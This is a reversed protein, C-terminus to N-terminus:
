RFNSCSRRQFCSHIRSTAFTFRSFIQFSADTFILFNEKFKYLFSNLVLLAHKVFIFWIIIFRWAEPAMWYPTGVMTSRKTQEGSLQACFGFDAIWLTLPKIFSVSKCPVFILKLTLISSVWNSMAMWALFFRFWIIDIAIIAWFIVWQILVFAFLIKEMIYLLM